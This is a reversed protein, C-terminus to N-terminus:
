DAADWAVVVSWLDEAIEQPYGYDLPDEKWANALVALGADQAPQYGAWSAFGNLAGNHALELEAGEGLLLTSLGFGMGPQLALPDDSMAETWPAPLLEGGWLLRAWAALSGPTSIMNGAAGIGSPRITDTLDELGMYGRVIDGWDEGLRPVSLGALEPSSLLADVRDEWPEGSVAEVVLGLLVYHTNSYSWSAGPEHVLDLTDVLGVLEEPAWEAGMGLQFNGQTSFEPIGATHQLLHRLTIESGRPHLEVHDALADDLELLGDAALSLVAAAVFTKTVSAIRFTDDPVLPQEGALDGSGSLGVWVQTDPLALAVAVGPVGHEERAQDVVQQLDAALDPDIVPPQPLPGGPDGPEPCGVLGVLSVLSLALLCFRSFM